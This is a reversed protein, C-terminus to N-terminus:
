RKWREREREQKVGRGKRGIRCGKDWIRGKVEDWGEVERRRGTKERGEGERYEGDKREKGGEM